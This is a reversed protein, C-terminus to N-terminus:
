QILDQAILLINCPLADPIANTVRTPVNVSRFGFFTGVLTVLAIGYALWAVNEKECVKLLLKVASIFESALLTWVGSRRKVVNIRAM